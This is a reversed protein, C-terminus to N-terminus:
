KGPLSIYQAPPEPVHATGFESFNLAGSSSDKSRSAFRLIYPKGRAAVEISGQRPSALVIIPEGHVRHAGNLKTFAASGSFLAKLFRNSYTLQTFYSFGNTTSPVRIWRRALESARKKTGAGLTLWTQVDAKIYADKGAAIIDMTAGPIGITGGGGHVSMVLDLSMSSGSSVIRGTVLFDGARSTAAVADKLIQAPKKSQEVERPAKAGLLAPAVIVVAGALVFGPARRGM